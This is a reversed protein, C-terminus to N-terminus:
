MRLGVWEQHLGYANSRTIPSAYRTRTRCGLRDCRGSSSRNRRAASRPFGSALLWCGTLFGVRHRWNRFPHGM